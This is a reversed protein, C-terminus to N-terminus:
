RGCSQVYAGPPQYFVVRAAAIILLLSGPPAFLLLSFGSEGEGTTFVYM